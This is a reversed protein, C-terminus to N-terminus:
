GIKHLTYKRTILESMNNIPKSVIKNWLQKCEKM